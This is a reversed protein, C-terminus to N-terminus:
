NDISNVLSRKVGKHIKPKDGKVINFLTSHFYPHNSTKTGIVM